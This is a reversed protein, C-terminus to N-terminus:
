RRGTGGCSMCPPYGYGACKPCDKEAFSHLVSGETHEYASDIGDGDCWTCRFESIGSGGCSLCIQPEDYDNDPIYFYSDNYNEYIGNDDGMTRSDDVYTFDSRRDEEASNSSIVGAAALVVFVAIIAKKMSIVEGEKKSSIIIVYTDKCIKFNNGGACSYQQFRM